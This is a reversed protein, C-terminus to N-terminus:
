ELFRLKIKFPLMFDLYYQCKKTGQKSALRNEKAMKETTDVIDVPKILITDSM